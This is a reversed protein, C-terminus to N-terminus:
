GVTRDGHVGFDFVGGKEGTKLNAIFTYHVERSEARVVGNCLETYIVDHVAERAKEDPVVVTLGFKESLRSRCFDKRMTFRTGLLGVTKFGAKVIREATADAIHLLPLHSADEIGQSM